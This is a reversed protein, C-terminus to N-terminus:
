KEAATATALEEEDMLRGLILSQVVLENSLERVRKAPPGACIESRRKRKKSAQGGATFMDAADITESVVYVWDFPKGADERAKLQRRAEEVTYVRSLSAGLVRALFIYAAKSENARPMLLLIRSQDLLRPRYQIIESLKATDAPFPTLNRSRIAENLFSSNGACLLYDSWDVLQQKEVCTTIWREHICPLGLALAQMYKVKRSHGDAILATFGSRRASPALIIDDDPQPTSSVTVAERDANKVPAIEFLSDFGDALVKGGGQKVKTTIQASIAMRATYQVDKEGPQKSQFSIAFVMGAFIKVGGRSNARSAPTERASTRGLRSMRTSQDFHLNSTSTPPSGALEDTSVSVDSPFSLRTNRRTAAPKSSLKTNQRCAKAVAPSSGTKNTSISTPTEERPSETLPTTKNSLAPTATLKSLPSTSASTPPASPLAKGGHVRARTSFAPAPPSSSVVTNPGATKDADVGSDIRARVTKETNKTPQEKTSQQPPRSTPGPLPSSTMMAYPAQCSAPSTEPVQAVVEDEVVAVPASPPAPDTNPVVDNSSIGEDVPRGLSASPQVIGDQSDAIELEQNPEQDQEHDPEQDQTDEITSAQSDRDSRGRCQDLYRQAAPSLEKNTSPVVAADSSRSYPIAKLNEQVRARQLAARQRRREDRDSIDDWEDDDDSGSQPSPERDEWRPVPKYTGNPARPVPPLVFSKSFNSRAIEDEDPRADEDTQQPSSDIVFPIQPLSSPGQLPSPAETSRALPAPNPSITNLQFNDPSPRSSTPSFAGKVASSYQTQKFMQSSAMLGAAKKNVRFPNRPPAPTEPDGYVYDPSADQQQATTRTGFSDPISQQTDVHALASMDLEIPGTEDDDNTMGTNRHSAPSSMRPPSRLRSDPVSSLLDDGRHYYQEYSRGENSQTSSQPSSMTNRHPKRKRKSYTLLPRPRPPSPQPFSHFGIADNGVSLLAPNIPLSAAHAPPSLSIAITEDPLSQCHSPSDTDTDTHDIPLVSGTATQLPALHLHHSSIITSSLSVRNNSADAFPRGQQLLPPNLNAAPSSSDPGETSKDQGAGKNGTAHPAPHDTKNKAKNKSAKSKPEASKCASSKAVARTIATPPAHASPHSGLLQQHVKTSRAQHLMDQYAPPNYALPNVPSSSLVGVGHFQHMAQAVLQSEQSEVRADVSKPAM